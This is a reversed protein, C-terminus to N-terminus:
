TQVEALRYHKFGTSLGVLPSELCVACATHKSGTADVTAIHEVAVTTGCSPCPMTAPGDDDPEQWSVRVDYISGKALTTLRQKLKDLGIAQGVLDDKM